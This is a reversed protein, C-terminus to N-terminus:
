PLVPIQIQVCEGHYGMPSFNALNQQIRAVNCASQTLYQTPLQGQNVHWFNYLMIVWVLKVTM